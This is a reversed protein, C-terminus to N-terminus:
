QTGDGPQLTKEIQDLQELWLAPSADAPMRWGSRASLSLGFIRPGDPAAARKFQHRFFRQYFTQLTKLIFEPEYEGAFIQRAEEFVTTPAKREQIAHWLFFDHLLYPGL